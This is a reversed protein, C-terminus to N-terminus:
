FFWVLQIQFALWREEFMDAAGTTGCSHVSLENDNKTGHEHSHETM